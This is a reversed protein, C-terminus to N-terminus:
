AGKRYWKSGVKYIDSSRFMDITRSREVNYTAHKVDPESEKFTDIEGDAPLTATTDASLRLATIAKDIKGKRKESPDRPPEPTPPPKPKPPPMKSTSAASFKDDESLSNWKGAVKVGGTILVPPPPLDDIMGKDINDIGSVLEIVKDRTILTREDIDLYYDYAKYYRQIGDVIPDEARQGDSNFVPRSVGAEIFTFMRALTIRGSGDKIVPESVSLRPYKANPVNAQIFPLFTSSERIQRASWIRHYGTGFYIKPDPNVAKTANLVEALMKANDETFSAFDEYLKMVKAMVNALDASSSGATVADRLVSIQETITKSSMENLSVGEGFNVRKFM